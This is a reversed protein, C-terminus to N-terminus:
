QAPSAFPDMEMDTVRWQLGHSEMVVTVEPNLRVAFRNLGTYSRSAAAWAEPGGKTASGDGRSPRGSLLTRAIASRQAYEWAYRDAMVETMSVGMLFFPGTRQGAQNQRRAQERFRERLRAEVTRSDVLDFLAKADNRRAAEALREAARYPAHVWWGLAAVFAVAAGLATGRKWGIKRM